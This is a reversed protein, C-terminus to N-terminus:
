INPYSSGIQLGAVHAIDWTQIRYTVGGLSVTCIADTYAFACVTYLALDFEPSTGIFFSGLAKVAEKDSQVPLWVFNAGVVNAQSVYHENILLIIKTIM